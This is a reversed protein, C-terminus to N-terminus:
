RERNRWATVSIVAGAVAVPFALVWAEGQWSITLPTETAAVRLSFAFGSAGGCLLLLGFVLSTPVRYM